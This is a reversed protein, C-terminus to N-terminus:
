VGIAVSIPTGTTAVAISIQDPHDHLRVGDLYCLPLPVVTFLPSCSPASPLVRRERFLRQAPVVAM